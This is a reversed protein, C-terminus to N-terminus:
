FVENTTIKVKNHFKVLIALKVMKGKIASREQQPTSDFLQM